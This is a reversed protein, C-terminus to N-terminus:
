VVLFSLSFLFFVATLLDVGSHCLEVFPQEAYLLYSWHWSRCGVDVNATLGFGKMLGAKVRM